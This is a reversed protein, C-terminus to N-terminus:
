YAAQFMDNELIQTGIKGTAYIYNRREKKDFWIDLDEILGGSETAVQLQTGVNAYVMRFPKNPRDQASVASVANHYVVYDGVSPAQGDGKWPTVNELKIEDSGVSDADNAVVHKAGTTSSTAAYYGAQVASVGDVSVHEYANIMRDWISVRAIKVGNYEAVDLGDFVKEWPMILKYTKKIDYTLCDAMAKTMLIVAGPDSTIRSDADMLFTDLLTTAVGEALMASRQASFTLQNNAAISTLQKSNAAAQAFIRKFLGDCTTFLEKKLNVDNTLIGGDAQKKAATDGFWAFRWIMRKMQRELAPRLIQSMFETSTLDGIQTGTKLTYEAITGQLSEYCIKLPIQWDGLTWRKQSNAVGYEQYTPDCGSGALGVEDGDGLFAVPDGNKVKKLSVFRQFDEDQDISLPILEKLTTVDKPNVSINEFFKM